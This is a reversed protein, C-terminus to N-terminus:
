VDYGPDSVLQERIDVEGEEDTDHTFKTRTASRQARKKMCATSAAIIEDWAADGLNAISKAYRKTTTGWKAESFHDSGDKAPKGSSWMTM